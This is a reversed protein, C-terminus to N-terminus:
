TNRLASRQSHATHSEDSSSANVHSASHVSARFMISNIDNMVYQRTMEDMKKLRIAVLRGFLSYEDKRKSGRKRKARPQRQVVEKLHGKDETLQSLPTVFIRGKPETGSDAMEEEHVIEPSEIDEDKIIEEEILDEVDSDENYDVTTEQDSNKPRSIAM